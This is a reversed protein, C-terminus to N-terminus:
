QMLKDNLVFPVLKCIFLIDEMQNFLIKFIFFYVNDGKNKSRVATYQMRIPYFWVILGIDFLWSDLEGKGPSHVSSHM